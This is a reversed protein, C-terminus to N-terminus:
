LILGGRPRSAMPRGMATFRKKNEGVPGLDVFMVQDERHNIIEDLKTMLGFREQESLECRFVSYQLWQGHGRMTQYVKRLRTDDSIDYSVLVDRRM